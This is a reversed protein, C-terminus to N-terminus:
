LAQLAAAAPTSLLYAGQGTCSTDTTLMSVCSNLTMGTNVLADTSVMNCITTNALTHSVVRSQWAAKCVTECWCAAAFVIAHVAIEVHDFHIPLSNASQLMSYWFAFM